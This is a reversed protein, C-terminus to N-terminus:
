RSIMKNKIKSVIIQNYIGQIAKFIGVIHISFYLPHHAKLTLKRLETETFNLVKPLCCKLFPIGHHSSNFKIRIIEKIDSIHEQQKKDWQSKSSFFYFIPIQTNIHPIIDFYQRVEKDKNRFLLPNIEEKSSALLSQIEFQGNFSLIRDANLMSGFLVAAYGGASSGLCIIKYGKTEERLFSLLKEPTNMQGNIGEIYWQKQIDRIFIHKHSQHTRLHYWEYFNREVIKERFVCETNPFYINNSSFYITCYEKTPCNNEYEILYNNQKTYIQKVIDSDCQFVFPNKTSKM